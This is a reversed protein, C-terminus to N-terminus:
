RIGGNMGSPFFLGGGTAPGGYVIKLVQSTTRSYALSNADTPVLNLGGNITLGQDDDGAGDLADRTDSIAQVTSLISEGGTQSSLGALVTRVTAAHYAEVGLLGAAVSLFAKNKILPAGGRYATVGVDEFIFAGLLFNVENAFPDFSTGLGAAVALTNFSNLLDIAPRAAPPKRIALVAKRLLLVHKKEDQAIENAYQQIAPTTFTVRPNAKITVEGFVGRGSTDAADLGVGTTGRLYYEAELYELNLAFNLVRADASETGPSADAATPSFVGAAAGGISALLGARGARSLFNRRSFPTSTEPTTMILSITKQYSHRVSDHAQSLRHDRRDPRKTAKKALYSRPWSVERRFASASNGGSRQLERLM